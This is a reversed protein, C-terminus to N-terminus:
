QLEKPPTELVETAEYKVDSGAEKGRAVSPLRVQGSPKIVRVGCAKTILSHMVVVRKAQALVSERDADDCMAAKERMQNAFMRWLIFQSSFNVCIESALIKHPPQDNIEKATVKSNNLINGLCRKIKKLVEPDAGLLDEAHPDVLEALVALARSRFQITERGAVLGPKQFLEIFTKLALLPANHMSIFHATRLVAQSATVEEGSFQGVLLDQLKALILNKASMAILSRAMNIVTINLIRFDIDYFDGYSM